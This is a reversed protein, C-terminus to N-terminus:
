IVQTEKRWTETLKNGTERYHLPSLFIIPNPPLAAGKASPPGEGKLHLSWWLGPRQLPYSNRKNDILNREGACTCIFYRSHTLYQAIAGRGSGKGVGNRM